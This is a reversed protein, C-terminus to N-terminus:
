SVQNDHISLQPYFEAGGKALDGTVPKQRDMGLIAGRSSGAIVNDAILATGAGRMVSVAIGIGSQRVVNGIASVNRLYSGWGLGIGVTQASEIVNGTVAADAEVGIGLGFEEPNAGPTRAGLNRLLNGRVTALRGGDNFNTVSIGSGAGDIINDAIVAGEFAFESYVAIDDCDGCSNGIVQFNSASNGRIASWVTKRVHNGRVIVDAARFINIGNGNQGSGGASSKTDEVINDAVLSGDHRKESQWVRIGGNGSGRITNALIFLGRSDNSFLGNDAAATIINGSVVGDCQVLRIADGGARLLNCDTLRLGRVDSLQVLGRGPPLSQGGGDLILGSLTIAEAHEASLLSPGGTLTLWTAGRVGMIQAGTALQLNGARYHGPALMLPVRRRTAQDIARQLKASQDDPAGPRVDFHAADLGLGALARSSMTLAAAGAFSGAILRRRDIPM